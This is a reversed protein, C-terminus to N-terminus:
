SGVRVCVCVCPKCVCLTVCVRVNPPPATPSQKAAEEAAKGAKWRFYEQMPTVQQKPARRVAAVLKTEPAPAARQQEEERAGVEEAKREKDRKREKRKKKKEEGKAAPTHVPTSPSAPTESQQHRAM